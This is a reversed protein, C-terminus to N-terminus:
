LIQNGCWECENSRKLNPSKCYSCTDPVTTQSISSLKLYKEIDGQNDILIKKCELMSKGTIKRCEDIDKATIKRM